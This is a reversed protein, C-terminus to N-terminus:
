VDLTTEKVPAFQVKSIGALAVTSIKATPPPPPPPEEVEPVPPPPPPPPCTKTEVNEISAVAVIVITATPDPPALLPPEPVEVVIELVPKGVM